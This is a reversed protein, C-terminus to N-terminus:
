RAQALVASAIARQGAATPHLPANSNIGQVWPRTTCLEHGSFDVPAYRAFSYGSAASSITQNLTALQDNLWQAEATTIAPQRVSCAASLPQYYGTLVVRPADGNSRYQISQLAYELKLALISQFSDVFAQDTATGCTSIYCKRAFYQWYMDNAGATITILQPTGGAFARDLQPEIDRSTGSLHQETVLDGATAGSCAFNQYPMDLSSAVLAPYARNSVGCAPDSGPAVPLGLGAAVSDGLAVYEGTTGTNEEPAGNSQPESTGATCGYNTGLASNIGQWLGSIIPSDCSTSGDGGRSAAWASPALGVLAVTLGCIALTINRLLKM